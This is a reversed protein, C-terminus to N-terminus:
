ILHGDVSERLFHKNDRVLLRPTLVTFTIWSLVVRTVASQAGHM